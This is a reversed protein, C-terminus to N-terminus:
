LSKEKAHSVEHVPADAVLTSSWKKANPMWEIKVKECLDEEMVMETRDTFGNRQFASLTVEDIDELTSTLDVEQATEETENLQNSPLADEKECASFLLLGSFALASISSFIKTKM